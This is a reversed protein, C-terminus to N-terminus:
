EVHFTYEESNLKLFSELSSQTQGFLNNHQNIINYKVHRDYIVIGIFNGDKKVKIIKNLDFNIDFLNITNEKNMVIRREM